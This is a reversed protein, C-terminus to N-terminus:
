MPGAIRSRRRRPLYTRATSPAGVVPRPRIQPRGVIVPADETERYIPAFASTDHRWGLDIGVVVGTADDPIDQGPRACDRWEAPSLAGDEGM